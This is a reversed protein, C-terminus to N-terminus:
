DDYTIKKLFLQRMNQDYQMQKKSRKKKLTKKAEVAAIKREVLDRSMQSAVKAAWKIHSALIQLESQFGLKYDVFFPARIKSYQHLDIVKAVEFRQEGAMPGTYYNQFGAMLVQPYAEGRLVIHVPGGNLVSVELKKESLNLLVKSNKIKVKAFLTEIDLRSQTEIVMQGSMLKVSEESFFTLLTAQDLEWQTTENTKIFRPRDGSSVVCPRQQAYVCDQPLESAAIFDIADVVKLQLISTFFFLIVKVLFKTM